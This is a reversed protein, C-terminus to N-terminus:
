RPLDRETIVLPSHGLEWLKCQALHMSGELRSCGPKRRDGEQGEKRGEKRDSPGYTIEQLQQYSFKFPVQSLPLSGAQWHLLSASTIGPDPLDGPPPCPLGRWYEQRSFGM